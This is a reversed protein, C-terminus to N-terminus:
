HAVTFATVSAAGAEELVRKAEILTAHTTTIDDVIIVSLGRIREPDRVTFNGRINEFRERRNKISNQTRGDKIKKLVDESLTLAGGSRAELERALVVSQNYGRRGMKKKSLPIPVLVIKKAGEFLIKESIEELFYEYM